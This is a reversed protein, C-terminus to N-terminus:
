SLMGLALGVERLSVAHTTSPSLSLHPLPLLFPPLLDALSCGNCLLTSCLPLAPHHSITPLILSAFTVCTLLHLYPPLVQSCFPPFFAFLTAYFLTLVAM